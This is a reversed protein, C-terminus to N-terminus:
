AGPGRRRGQAAVSNRRHARKRGPAPLGVGLSGAPVASSDGPHEVAAGAREPLAGSGAVLDSPALPGTGAAVPVVPGAAGSGASAVAAFRAKQARSEEDDHVYRSGRMASALAAVVSM